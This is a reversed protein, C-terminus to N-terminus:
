HAAMTAPAAAEESIERASTVAFGLADQLAAIPMLMTCQDDWAGDRELTFYLRVMGGGIPEVKRIATALHEPPRRRNTQQQKM